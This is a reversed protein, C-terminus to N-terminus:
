SLFDLLIRSFVALFTILVILKQHQSLVFLINDFVDHASQFSIDEGPPLFAEYFSYVVSGCGAIFVNLIDAPFELSIDFRLAEIV